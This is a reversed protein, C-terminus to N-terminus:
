GHLITSNRKPEDHIVAVLEMNVKKGDASLPLIICEYRFLRGDLESNSRCHLPQGKTAVETCRQGVLGRENEPLQDLMEGTIDSGSREALNTGHLRIRFRFPEEGIVDVLMVDGLVYSIDVPDIDNRSPMERGDRKVEWYEYLRRLRSHSIDIGASSM